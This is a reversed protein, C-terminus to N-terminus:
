YVMVPIIVPKIFVALLRHCSTSFPSFYGRHARIQWLGVVRLLRNGRAPQQAQPIDRRYWSEDAFAVILVLDFCCIAFVLWFVNRWEGTGAIIFNGFLPGFYPATLFLAAWLGIKRAHEHFYFMDKLYALGIVQCATLTFGMLARLGYFTTFSTTLCCGLTFFAGAVTTWFLVPARGWYYIFPIWFLGGIGSKELHKDAGITFAELLPNIPTSM